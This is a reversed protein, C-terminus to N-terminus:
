CFCEINTLSPPSLATFLKASTIDFYANLCKRSNRGAGHEVNCLRASSWMDPHLCPLFTARGLFLAAVSAEM